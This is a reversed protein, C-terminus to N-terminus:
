KRQVHAEGVIKILANFINDASQNESIVISKYLKPEPAWFKTTNKRYFVAVVPIDVACGLHMTGTDVSVLCECNKLVSALVPITTKGVLDIFECGAIKLKEAYAKMDKGVGLLLVNYHTDNIKRILDICVDVPLDKKINKSLPCIAIYKLKKSINCRLHEPIVDSVKYRIPMNVINKVNLKYLLETHRQQVSCNLNNKDETIVHKAGLLRAIIYNREGRYPIFACFPFKYPFAFLFRLIGLLGKNKGNKDYSIVEDVDEQYRAADEYPKNVVFIIKAEPYNRKINRCLSNCLLVDGFFSTNIVLFIKESDNFM